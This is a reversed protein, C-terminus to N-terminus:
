IGNLIYDCPGFVFLVCFRFSACCKTFQSSFRKAEIGSVAQGILREFQATHCGAGITGPLEVLAIPVLTAQLTWIIRAHIRPVNGAVPRDPLLFDRGALVGHNGNALFILVLGQYFPLNPSPITPPPSQGSSDRIFVQM